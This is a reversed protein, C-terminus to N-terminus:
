DVPKKPLPPVAEGHGEIPSEIPLLDRRRPMESLAHASVIDVAQLFVHDPARAAGKIWKVLDAEAIGLRASLAPVGGAIDAARRLTRAYVVSMM